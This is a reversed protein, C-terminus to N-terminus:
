PTLNNHGYLIDVVQCQWQLQRLLWQLSLLSHNHLAMRKSLQQLWTGGDGVDAYRLKDRIDKVPQSQLCLQQLGKALREMRIQVGLVLKISGAWDMLDLDSDVFWQLHCDRVLDHFQAECMEPFERRLEECTFHPAM